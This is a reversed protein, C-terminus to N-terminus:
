LSFSNLLKGQRKPEKFSRKVSNLATFPPTELDIELVRQGKVPGAHRSGSHARSEM